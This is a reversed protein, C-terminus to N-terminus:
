KKKPADPPPILGLQTMMKMEEMYGWHESAKGNAFRIVDCGMVDMAKNTAPMAGWPGSNTGTMRLHIFTKDGTTSMSVIEQKFDPYATFIMNLYDKAGQMGTTTISPDQQHDVFDDNMLAELGEMNHSNFLDIIRAAMAEQAKAASDAKMMEAHMGAMPDNHEAHEHEASECAAFLLIGALPLSSILTRM